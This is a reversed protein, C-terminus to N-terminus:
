AIALRDTQFVYVFRTNRENGNGEKLQFVIIQKLRSLLGSENGIAYSSAPALM